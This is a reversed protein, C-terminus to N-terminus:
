PHPVAHWGPVTSPCSAVPTTVSTPFETSFTATPSRIRATHTLAQPKQRNQVDPIYPCHRFPAPRQAVRDVAHRGLVGADWEGAVRDV